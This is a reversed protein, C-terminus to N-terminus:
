FRRGIRWMFADHPQFSGLGSRYELDRGFYWGIESFSAEGSENEIEETGILLRYETLTAIDSRGSSRGIAWEDGHYECSIYYWTSEEENKWAKHKVKVRPFYLEWETNDQDGFVVGAAPLVKLNELDFYEIGFVFRSRPAGMYGLIRGPFRWGESGTEFDSHVGLNFNGEVGLGDEFSLVAQTNLFFDFVRPPLDSRGPGSLFHIAGGFTADLEVGNTAEFDLAWTPGSEFSAQGIGNKDSGRPILTLSSQSSRFFPGLDKEEDGELAVSHDSSTAVRPKETPDDDPEESGPLSGTDRKKSEDPEVVNLSAQQIEPQDTSDEKRVSAPKSTLPRLWDHQVNDQDSAHWPIYKAQKPRLKSPVWEGADVNCLSLTFPTLCLLCLTIRSSHRMM